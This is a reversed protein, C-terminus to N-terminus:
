TIIEPKIKQIFSIVFITIIGESLAAILYLNLLYIIGKGYGSFYFEAAMLIVPAIIGFFGAMFSKLYNNITLKWIIWALYAGSAMNITNIGISILGGHQFILSQFLLATFVVPFARKKLIIGAIGFLGLHLSTGGIPLHILSAAFLAAATMGMKPIEQAEIKKSSFHIVAISLVDATLCVQWNIIGDSIHM